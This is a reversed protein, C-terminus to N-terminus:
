MRQQKKPSTGYKEKFIDKQGKKRKREAPRGRPNKGVPPMKLNGKVRDRVENLAIPKVTGLDEYQRQWTRTSFCSGFLDTPDSKSKRAAVYEHWCPKRTMQPVGCSCDHDQLTSVYSVHQKTRPVVTVCQSRRSIRVIPDPFTSCQEKLMSLNRQGAHPTIREHHDAIEQVRSSIREADQEIFLLLALAAGHKRVGQLSANGCEALSSASRGYTAGKTAVPFLEKDEYSSWRKRTTPSLKRKLSQLKSDIGAKIMKQYIKKDASPLYKKEHESCVFKNALRLIAKIALCIGKEGDAIIYVSRKDLNPYISKSFSMFKKWTAESENDYYLALALCVIRDDADIGWLGFMTGHLSTQMHAGDTSFVKRLKPFMKISWSPAFEWGYLVNEDTSISDLMSKDFDSLGPFSVRHQKSVNKMSIRHMAKRMNLLVQAFEDKTIHHIKCKHGHEIVAQQVQIMMPGQEQVSGFAIQEAQQRVISFFRDSLLTPTSVYPSLLERIAQSSLMKGKTRASVYANVLVMALDKAQYNCGRTKGLVDLSGSNCKSDHDVFTSVKYERSITDKVWRIQFHDCHACSLNVYREDKRTVNCNKDLCEFMAQTMVRAAQATPATWNAPYGDQTQLFAMTYEITPPLEKSVVSLGDLGLLSNPESDIFLEQDVGGSMESECTVECNALSQTHTLKHAQQEPKACMSQKRLTRDQSTIAYKSSKNEGAETHPVGAGQTVSPVNTGINITISPNIMNFVPSMQPLMHAMFPNFPVGVYPNYFNPFSANGFPCLNPYGYPPAAYNLHTNLGSSIQPNPSASMKPNTTDDQRGTEKKVSMNQKDAAPQYEKKVPVTINPPPKSMKCSSSTAGDARLWFTFVFNPGAFLHVRKM